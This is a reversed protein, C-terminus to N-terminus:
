IGRGTPAPALTRRQRGVLREVLEQGGGCGQDRRASVAGQSADGDGDSQQGVGRIAVAQLRRFGHGRVDDQGPLHADQHGDREGPFSWPCQERQRHESVDTLADDDGADQAVQSGFVGIGWAAVVAM